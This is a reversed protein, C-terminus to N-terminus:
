KSKCFLDIWYSASLKYYDYKGSNIRYFNDELFNKRRLDHWSDVVLVPLNQVLYNLTNHSKIIPIGGLYLTEWIRHTDIGNGTPCIVFSNTRCNKLFNLRAAKTYEPITVKIGMETLIKSVKKRHLRLTDVTYCAFVKGEFFKNRQELMAESMLDLDSLISQSKSNKSWNTLGLPLSHMIPHLNSANVSYVSEFGLWKAYFYFLIRIREDSKGMVLTKKTKPINTKGISNTFIGEYFDSKYILSSNFFYCSNCTFTHQEFRSSSILDNGQRLKEFDEFV